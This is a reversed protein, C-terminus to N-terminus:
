GKRDALTAQLEIDKGDRRVKLKVQDGAKAARLAATLDHLDNIPKDGFRTIVDADALGAAEAPSGPSTGTIRVGDTSEMSSYDPVVGLTVGSGGPGGGTGLTHPDPGRGTAVYEMRPVTALDDIIDRGVTVVQGLADYNIKDADDSPRHYDPHTGSFFFLAPIKKMIFSAHDSPGFGSPNLKLDLPSAEDAAKVIEDLERATGTGSVFLIDNRVRGVMDMNLMAVIRELPVPPHEVFHRSGILGWEEATFAVFLISRRDGARTQNRSTDRRPAYERALALMASVGSANDDAGNHIEGEKGGRSFLRSKGVHDYHAGVVVYQDKLKGRGPAIAAVNMVPVRRIEVRVDGSARADKLEMSAPKGSADIKAQLAKLDGAGSKELLKNAADITISIVPIKARAETFQGTFPVLGEPHYTPPNVILLAAAGREAALAAKSKFTAEDSYGNPVFRSKGQDNHPEFRMALAVKGKVDVDAYDDYDHKESSIGYGVFVVPADFNGSASFGLPRFSEELALPQGDFSLSTSDAVFAGTSMDFRQFYGNWAPISKLGARKFQEAIYEAARDLGNSGIGRGELEDSALYGLTEQTTPAIAARSSAAIADPSDTVAARNCGAAAVWLSWLLLAKVAHNM